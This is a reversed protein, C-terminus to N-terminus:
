VIDFVVSDLDMGIMLNPHTNIFEQTLGWGEERMFTELFAPKIRLINDEDRDLIKM